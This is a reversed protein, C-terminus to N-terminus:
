GETKKAKKKKPKPVPKYGCKKLRPADHDSANVMHGNPSTLQEM